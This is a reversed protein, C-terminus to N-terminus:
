KGYRQVISSDVLIPVDPTWHSCAAVIIREQEARAEEERGHPVATVYEDHVFLVQYCGFLPSAPDLGARFLWWLAQKAALAALGQFTFNCADNLKCTRTLGTGPITIRYLGGGISLSDIWEFYAEMEPLTELWARKLRRATAEDVEIRASTWAFDIFRAIGLRGPFGFNAPKALQRAREHEKIARDFAEIPVGIIRSGTECHIDRSPDRMIEALRSWGFLRLLVQAHTRMELQGIDSILFSHGPPPVLCERFGEGEDFGLIRLTDPRAFNQLNTGIWEHDAVKAPKTKGQPSSSGTRATVKFEDYRTRVIPRRFIPINKTRHARLSKWLSFRALPHDDRLKAHHLAKGDLSVYEVSSADFGAAALEEGKKTRRPTVGIRACHEAMRRQAEAPTGVTRPKKKGELRVLGSPLLEFALREIRAAISKDLKDVYERDTHIGTLTQAYLALHAQSQLPVHAIEPEALQRQAVRYPAIADDRAYEYALAPWDRLEVGILEVYRLRWPNAKDLVIGARYKAVDELGFKKRGDGVRAALMKEVTLVDWVRGYEFADLIELALEPRARWLAFADYVAMAGVLGTRLAEVVRDWEVRHAPEVLPTVGDFTQVCALRPVPEANTALATETDLSIM